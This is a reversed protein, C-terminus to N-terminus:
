NSIKLYPLNRVGLLRNVESIKYIKNEICFRIVLAFESSSSLTYGAKKLLYKFDYDNLHMALGIKIATDLSPNTKGSKISSWVQRTLAADKYLKVDDKINYKELLIFLDDYFSCSKEYNKQHGKIYIELEKELEM